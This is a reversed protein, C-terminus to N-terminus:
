RVVGSDDSADVAAREAEVVEALLLDSGKKKKFKKKYCAASQGKLARTEYARLFASVHALEGRGKRERESRDDGADM